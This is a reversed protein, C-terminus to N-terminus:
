VVGREVHPSIDFHKRYLKSFHSASTFGCAVAVDIVRMQTQQLLLRARELRLGTMYTKPSSGIYRRFLRELQRTSLGVQEAIVSPSLPEGLTEQMIGVALGLKEHRTGLRCSDSKTQRDCSSRVTAYLLHDAVQTAIEVGCKKGILASFLDLTSAGGGCTVVKREDEYVSCVAELNPFLEALAPQLAWHTSLRRGMVLGTRALVAGGGGLGCLQAGFRNAQRLWTKLGRSTPQEKMLPACIVVCDGGRTVPLASEVDVIMGSSSTVPEGTEGVIKWAFSPQGGAANAAALSEVGAGLDLASFGPLLLFIFRDVEILNARAIDINFELRGM